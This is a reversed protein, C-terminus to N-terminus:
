PILVHARLPQALLYLDGATVTACNLFGQEIQRRNENALNIRRSDVSIVRDLFVEFDTFKEHRDYEYINFCRFTGNEVANRIAAQAADRVETEDELYRLAEFFAGYSCPEVVVVPM